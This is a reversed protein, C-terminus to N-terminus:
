LVAERPFDTPIGHAHIAILSISRPENISGYHDVIRARPGSVGRGAVPEVTVLEGDKMGAVASPDVTFAHRSKRDVPEVHPLQGPRSMVASADASWREKM